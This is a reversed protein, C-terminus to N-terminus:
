KMENIPNLLNNRIILMDFKFLSSGFISAIKYKLGYTLINLEFGLKKIM